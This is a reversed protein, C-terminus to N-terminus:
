LEEIIKDVKETSHIANFVATCMEKHINELAHEIAPEPGVVM